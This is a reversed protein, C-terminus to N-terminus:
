PASTFPLDAGHTTEVGTVVLRANYLTSSALGTVKASVAVPTSGSPPLSACPVSLGYSPTTGYEFHCSTVPSGDPNVMAALTATGHGVASPADMEVAPPQAEGPAESAEGEEPEPSLLMPPRPAQNFNFDSVLSGIGPQEERTDPRNDRRGDTAPNLREGHLFDDEIFKAYSDHSLQQNDIYGARAYPSIVLGPVRLGLGNEDITPPNVHDYFGGWDDWTLFIATSNWCPSKMIANILTTTYAQGHPLTARPHESVSQSPIMWSVNPLGCNPEEHVARYFNRVPSINGQQGDEKVDTFDQLPNWIGPTTTNQAVKECSELENNECDPESGEHLYYRWSVGARHM